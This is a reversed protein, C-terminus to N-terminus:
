FQKGSIIDLVLQYIKCDADVTAILRRLHEDYEIANNIKRLDNIKDRNARVLNSVDNINVKFESVIEQHEKVFQELNIATKFSGLDIKNLELSLEYQEEIIKKFAIMQKKAINMFNIRMANLLRLRAIYRADIGEISGFINPPNISSPPIDYKFYDCFLCRPFQLQKIEESNANELNTIDSFNYDSNNGDSETSELSKIYNSLKELKDSISDSNAHEINNKDSSQLQTEKDNTNTM